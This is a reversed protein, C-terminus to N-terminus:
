PNGRLGRTRAGGGDNQQLPKVTRCTHQAPVNRRDPHGRPPLASCIYRERERESARGRERERAHPDTLVGPCTAWGCNNQPFLPTLFSCLNSHLSYGYFINFMLRESERERERARDSQGSCMQCRFGCSRFQDAGNRPSGDKLTPCASM